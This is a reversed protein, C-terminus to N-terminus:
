PFLTELIEPNEEEWALLSHCTTCDQSITSGDEALHEEDHCRFCGPFEEHGIHDPYTGWGVNMEPHVYRSWTEQLTEIALDVHEAFSKSSLTDYRAYFDRITSEIQRQATTEDPYDTTLAALAERKLYPLDVPLTGNAM